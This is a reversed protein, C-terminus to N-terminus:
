AEMDDARGDKAEKKKKRRIEAITKAYSKKKRRDKQWRNCKSDNATGNFQGYWAWGKYLDESM